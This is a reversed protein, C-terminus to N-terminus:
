GRLVAGARLLPSLSLHTPSVQWPEIRELLNVGGYRLSAFVLESCFWRGDSQHGETQSRSVFGFVMPYDYRKGIQAMAFTEIAEAQGETCDFEFLQIAEGKTPKIGELEQVGIFERSEVVRGDRLVLSAHSWLGRQQWQIMRSVFGTGQHLAVSLM